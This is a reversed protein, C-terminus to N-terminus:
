PAREKEQPGASTQAASASKQKLYVALVQKLEALQLITEGPGRTARVKFVRSGDPLLDPAYANYCTVLLLWRQRTQQNPRVQGYIEELSLAVNPANPDVVGPIRTTYDSERLTIKDPQGKVRTGEIRRVDTKPGSMGGTSETGYQLEGAKALHARDRVNKEVAERDRPGKYGHSWLVVVDYQERAGVLEEKSVPIKEVLTFKVDYEKELTAAMERLWGGFSTRGGDPTHVETDNRAMFVVIAETLGWPDTWGMPNNRCLVYNGVGETEGRVARELNMDPGSFM